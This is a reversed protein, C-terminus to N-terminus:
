LFTSETGSAILLDDGPECFFYFNFVSRYEMFCSCVGGFTEGGFFLAFPADNLVPSSRVKLFCLCVCM